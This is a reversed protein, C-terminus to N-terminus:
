AVRKGQDPVTQAFCTTPTASRLSSATKPAERIGLQSTTEVLKPQFSAVGRIVRSAADIPDSQSLYPEESALVGLISDFTEKPVEQVLGRELRSVYQDHVGARRSLESASLKTAERASRFAEASVREYIVEVVVRVESM